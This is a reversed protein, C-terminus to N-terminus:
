HIWPAGDVTLEEIVVRELLSRVDRYTQDVRNREEDDSALALEVVLGYIGTRVARALREPPLVLLHLSDSFLRLLGLEVRALAEANFDSLRDALQRDRTAIAMTQVMFPTWVHMDRVADWLADLAEMATGVGAEGRSFREEFREHVRRFSARQAEILLHEKSRFHYRLVGLPVGAAAAIDRLSAADVGQTGVLRAAADVIRLVTHGARQRRSPDAQQM